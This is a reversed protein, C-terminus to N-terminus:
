LNFVGSISERIIGIMYLKHGDFFLFIYVINSLWVSKRDVYNTKKAVRGILEVRKIEILIFNTTM